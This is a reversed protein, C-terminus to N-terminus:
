EGDHAEKCKDCRAAILPGSVKVGAPKGCVECQLRYIGSHNDYVLEWHANCCQSHVYFINNAM